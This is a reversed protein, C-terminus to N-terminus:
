FTWCMRYISFYLLNFWYRTACHFNPIKGLPLYRETYFLIENSDLPSLVVVSKFTETYPSCYIYEIPSCTCIINWSLCYLARGLFDIFLINSKSRGVWELVINNNSFKINFISTTLSAFIPKGAVIPIRAPYFIIVSIVSIKNPRSYKTM